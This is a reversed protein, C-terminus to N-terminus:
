TLHDRFSGAAGDLTVTTFSGAPLYKAQKTTFVSRCGRASVSAVTPISRPSVCKATRESPVFILEGRNMRLASVFIRRAWFARDLFCFPELFRALALALTARM